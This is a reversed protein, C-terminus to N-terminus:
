ISTSYQIEVTLIEIHGGQWNLHAMSSLDSQYTTPYSLSLFDIWFTFPGGIQDKLEGCRGM